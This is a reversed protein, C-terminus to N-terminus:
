NIIKKNRHWQHFFFDLSSKDIKKISCKQSPISGKFFDVTAKVKKYKTGTRINKSTAILRLNFIAHLPSTKDPAPDCKKFIFRMGFNPFFKDQNYDLNTLDLDCNHVTKGVTTRLVFEHNKKIFIKSKLESTKFNCQFITSEAWGSAGHFLFTILFTFRLIYM